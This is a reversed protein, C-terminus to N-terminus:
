QNKAPYNKEFFQLYEDLGKTRYFIDFNSKTIVFNDFNLNRLDNMSPLKENFVKFYEVAANMDALDAVFILGFKDDFILNSINLASQPFDSQNFNELAATIIEEPKEQLKYLVVFYHAENFSNIFKIGKRKEQDAQFKRSTELLRQAYPTIEADPYKKIFDELSFQYQSIDETEGVILVKLLDLTSSFSTEGLAEAQKIIQMASDYRGLEFANYADKYILKQKEAALSSEQLYSPNILIKTFTSNPHKEKLISAYKQAKEADKDKLILYLTYLVEPEHETEPFRALLKEYTLVADKEEQLKFYYIEGVKFYAEEIKALAEKKAEETKPIEKSIRQFEADVPDVEAKKEQGAASAGPTKAANDVQTAVTRSQERMSRRWNDALEVNGWIRNFESQGIAMASSNAFYWDGSEETTEQAAADGDESPFLNNNNNGEIQIRNGGKRKTAKSKETELKATVASDIKARLTISDMNALTLLSDQWEITKLHKVFEDLIESRTKIQQYGDYDQPLASLASDYYAQSLGYDKLTDYYIEGLKLFSEGAIKKNKGSHVSLKFDSIAEKLNDHKLEFIGMEYYIKDKFEKNKLDRLLKRFSKRAINIDKNRSIETVQALYLRAYFDVEYEPNTSLCKKYFNYAESEFGMKQYVQGIIFYIRGRRDKKKLFPSAQTLSRVMNDYDNNLQFYYAKELNLKKRNLKSLKEKQLYDIAAKANNYENHEIYTRVLNIIALHKTNKDKAIKNTYKFTQIANGWDMEYLRAKGVLIYSDDIWKSNQHRQIALSAMKICETLEKEFSKSMTSDFTPFLRLVRNYDDVQNKRITAEIKNIEERAYWYGNYHSTTNHYAKSTWTNKEVSCSTAAIAILLYYIALNRL